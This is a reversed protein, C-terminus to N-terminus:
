IPGFGIFDEIWHALVLPWLKRLKLYTMMYISGIVFTVLVRGPGSGWHMLSFFCASIVVIQSIPRRTKLLWSLALKRFVLEESLAVLFLGLTLDLWYLQFNVM